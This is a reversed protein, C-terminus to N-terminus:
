WWFTLISSLGHFLFNNMILNAKWIKKFWEIRIDSDFTITLVCPSESWVLDSSCFFSLNWIQSLMKLDMKLLSFTPILSLEHFIFNNMMSNAKWIKKFWNIGIESDYTIILVSFDCPWVLDSSLFFAFKTNPIANQPGNKVIFVNSNPKIRLYFNNKM